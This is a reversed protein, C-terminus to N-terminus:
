SSLTAENILHLLELYKENNRNNNIWDINNIHWSTYYKEDAYKTKDYLDIPNAAM